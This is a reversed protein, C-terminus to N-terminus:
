QYCVGTTKFREVECLLLVLPLDLYPINVTKVVGQFEM